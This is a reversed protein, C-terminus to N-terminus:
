SIARSGVVAVVFEAEGNEAGVAFPFVSIVSALGETEVRRVIQERCNDLPEFALVRGGPSVCRAIPFTHHGTHAGVDVAIDGPRLFAEYLDQLNKEFDRSAPESM